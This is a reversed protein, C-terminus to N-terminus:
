VDLNIRNRANKNNNRKFRDTYLFNFDKLIVLNFLIYSFCQEYLELIDREMGNTNVNKFVGYLKMLLHEFNKFCKMVATNAQSDESFVFFFDCLSNTTIFDNHSNNLTRYSQVYAASFLMVVTILLLLFSCVLITILLQIGTRPILFDVKKCLFYFCVSMYADVIATILLVLYFSKDAQQHRGPAVPGRLFARPTRLFNLFGSPSILLDDARMTSRNESIFLTKSYRKEIAERNTLSFAMKELSKRAKQRAFNEEATYRDKIIFAAIHESMVPVELKNIINVYNNGLVGFRPTISCPRIVGYDIYPEDTLPDVGRCFGQILLLMDGFSRRRIGDALQRLSRQIKDLDFHSNLLQRTQVDELFGNFAIISSYLEQLSNNINNM